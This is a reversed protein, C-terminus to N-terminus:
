GNNEETNLVAAWECNWDEPAPEIHLEDPLAEIYTRPLNMGAMFKSHETLNPWAAHIKEEGIRLMLAGITEYTIFVKDSM